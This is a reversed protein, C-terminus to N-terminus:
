VVVNNKKNKNCGTIWDILFSFRSPKTDNNEDINNENNNIKDYKKNEKNFCYKKTLFGIGTGAALCITGLLYSWIAFEKESFHLPHENLEKDILDTYNNHNSHNFHFNQNTKDLSRKERNDNFYLNVYDYYSTLFIRLEDTFGYVRMHHSMLEKQHDLIIKPYVPLNEWNECEKIGGPYQKRLTDSACTYTQFVEFYPALYKRGAITKNIWEGHNDLCYGKLAHSFFKKNEQFLITYDFDKGNKDYLSFVNKELQTSDKKYCWWGFVRCWFRQMNYVELAIMDYPWRYYTADSPIGCQSKDDYSTAHIPYGENNPSASASSLQSLFSLSGLVQFSTPMNYINSALVGVRLSWCELIKLAKSINEKLTTNKNQNNKPEKNVQNETSLLYIEQFKILNKFFSKQIKDVETIFIEHTTKDKLKYAEELLNQNSQSYNECIKLLNEITKKKQLREINWQNM